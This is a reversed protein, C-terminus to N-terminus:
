KGGTFESEEVSSLRTRLSEIETNNNKYVM